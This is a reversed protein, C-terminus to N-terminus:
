FQSVVFNTQPRTSEHLLHMGHMAIYLTSYTSVNWNQVNVHITSLIWNLVRSLWVAHSVTPTDHLRYLVWEKHMDNKMEDKRNLCKRHQPIEMLVNKKNCAGVFSTKERAVFLLCHPLVTFRSCISRNHKCFVTTHPMMGLNAIIFSYLFCCCSNYCFWVVVVDVVIVAARILRM